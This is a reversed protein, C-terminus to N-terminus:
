SFLFTNERYNEGDGVTGGMGRCNYGLREITAEGDKEKKAM